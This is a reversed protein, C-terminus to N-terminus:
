QDHSAEIIQRLRKRAYFLRSKVTGEAICLIEAIRGVDFGEDYHLALIARDPGPLRQLAEHLESVPQDPERNSEEWQAQDWYAEIAKRRRSARRIHDCCKHSTIQYAWGAFATPDELRRLGRSIGLLAEQLVDWAAHEDGLLRWAHRWLREQWRGVLEDFAAPDGEQSRLVLLDDILWQRRHM